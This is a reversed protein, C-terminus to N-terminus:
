FLTGLDGDLMRNLDETPGKAKDSAAQHVASSLGDGMRPASRSSEGHAPVASSGLLGAVQKVLGIFEWFGQPSETTDSQVKPPFFTDLNPTYRTSLGAPLNAHQGLLNDWNSDFLSAGWSTLPMESIRGMLTPPNQGPFAPVATRMYEDYRAIELIYQTRKLRYRIATKEIFRSVPASDPFIVKRRPPATM